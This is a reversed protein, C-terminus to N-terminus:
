GSGHVPSYLITKHGDIIATRKSLIGAKVRSELIRKASRDTLGTEHAYDSVSMEYRLKTRSTQEKVGEEILEDWLKDYDIEM